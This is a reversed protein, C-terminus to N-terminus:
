YTAMRRDIQTAWAHVGGTLNWVNNFGAHELYICVQQSRIGSHCIVVTHQEPDLNDLAEPIQRMPILTSDELHCIDFEWKERVDILLPKDGKTKMLEDLEVVNIHRM